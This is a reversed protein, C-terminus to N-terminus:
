KQMNAGNPANKPLCFRMREKILGAVTTKQRDAERQIANKFEEDLKLNVIVMKKRNTM